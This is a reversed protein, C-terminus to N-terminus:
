GLEEAVVNKRVMLGAWLIRIWNEAPSGHWALFSAGGSRVLRAAFEGDDRDEEGVTYVMVGAAGKGKANGKLRTLRAPGARGLWEVLAEAYPAGAEGAQEGAGHAPGAPCLFRALAAELAPWNQCASDLSLRAPDV